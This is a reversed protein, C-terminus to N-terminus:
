QEARITSIIINPPTGILTIMGGLFSAFAIPMLYSSPSMERKQALFVALPMTMALAGVNNMFASAVCVFVCLLILEKSFSLKQELLVKALQEILGSRVLGHSVVLIMGVTIVAPHSFGLFAEEASLISSFVLLLLCIIAVLDYRIKGWAFLVLALFLIAFVIYMEM